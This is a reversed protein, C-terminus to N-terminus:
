EEREPQYPEPLERWAKVNAIQMFENGDDPYFGWGMVTDYDCVDVFWGTEAGFTCLYEGDETPADITVPVWRQKPQEKYGKLERLWEALQRHEIECKRNGDTTACWDAVKECHLIAEELTM